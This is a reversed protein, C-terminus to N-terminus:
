PRTRPTSSVIRVAIDPPVRVAPEAVPCARLGGRRRPPLHRAPLGRRGADTARREGVVFKVGSGAVLGGLPRAWAPFHCLAAVSAVEHVTGASDGEELRGDVLETQDDEPLAAWDDLSLETGAAPELLAERSM